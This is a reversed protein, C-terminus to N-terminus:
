KTPDDEPHVYTLQFPGIATVQVETIGRATAFHAMNAPATIFGGEKLATLADASFNEGLGVSFTGRLVTVQEDTPHTHPPLVYGNPFRLRVTFLAGPVSPDGQMVAFLAGAPFIPPAPVWQIDPAHEMQHTASRVTAAREPSQALIKSAEAGSCAAVTAAFSLTVAMTQRQLSM